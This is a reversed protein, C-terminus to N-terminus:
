KKVPEKGDMPMKNDKMKKRMEKFKEMKAAYAADWEEKTVKGDKNADKEEFKKNSFENSEEKTIVGDGNTDLEKWMSEKREDMRHHMRDGMKGGMAADPVETSVKPMEENPVQALPNQVAAPAAQALMAATAITTFIFGFTFVHKM